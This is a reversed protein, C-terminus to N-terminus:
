QIYYDQTDTNALKKNHVKLKLESRQKINIVLNEKEPSLYSREINLGVSMPTNNLTNSM